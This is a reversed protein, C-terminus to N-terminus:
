VTVVYAILAAVYFWDVTVCGLVYWTFFPVGLGRHKSLDWAGHLFIASIVCYPSIVLGAFSLVILFLAFMVELRQANGTKLAALPYTFNMAVSFFVAIEWIYRDPLKAHAVM